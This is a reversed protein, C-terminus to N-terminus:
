SMFRRNPLGTLQDTLSDRKVMRMLRTNWIALAIHTAFLGILEKDESFPVDQAPLFLSIIGFMIGEAMLPVCVHRAVGMQGVMESCISQDKPFEVVKGNKIAHM